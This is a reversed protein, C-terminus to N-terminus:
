FEFVFEFKFNVACRRLAVLRNLESRSLCESVKAAENHESMIVSQHENASISRSMLQFKIMVIM